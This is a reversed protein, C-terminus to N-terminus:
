STRQGDMGAVAEAHQGHKLTDLIPRASLHTIKALAVAPVADGDAGQREPAAVCFGAPAKASLTHAGRCAGGAVHGLKQGSARM